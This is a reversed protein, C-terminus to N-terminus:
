LPHVLKIREHRLRRASRGVRSRERPMMVWSARVIELVVLPEVQDVEGLLGLDQVLRGGRLSRLQNADDVLREGPSEESLGGREGRGLQNIV